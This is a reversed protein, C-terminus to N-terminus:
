QQQEAKAQGAQEIPELTAFYEMLLRHTFIYSGGVKRLFVREAAYDLFRIYNLPAYNNRWLLIRLVYHKLCASGGNQLGVALGFVLGFVLGGSLGIALGLDLGVVLDLELWFILRIALGFVLEPGLGFILKLDLGFVLWPSVGFVLGFVLGGFLGFVLGFVLRSVLEGGLGAGLGAGLWGVLMGGLAAGLWPVLVGGLIFVLGAGLWAVLVGSLLSILANRLSRRIGENPITRTVIQDTSLGGVLGSGLGFVLGLVLGFVLGTVLGDVLGLLQGVGLGVVLGVVLGGVLLGLILGGAWHSRARRWSWRLAEAPTIRDLGSGLGAGLGLVLGAGLGFVLGFVLGCFIIPMMAVVWRQARSPLWDPQMLEVYFVSLNNRMLSRALWTLWHITQEQTYETVKTRREFMRETYKAFLHARRKELSGAARVEAASRGRYALSVISLMLPTDLLEWLTEDDRLATRVGALPKGAQKLYTSVQARSLANIAVAGSVKVRVPLAHYDAARCCVALPVLWHQQRFTNIAEVCEVRHEPAVEDLGDLLPLVQEADIWTQALKRPVYYREALEDVLWDALPRRRVAWSSLHFVVPMPYSADQEARDLLDRTLELLLTTKGAGPAGLILLAQGLEDFVASISRGPPLPRPVQGPPQVILDFPRSITDPEEEKLGLEIRVINDLSHKLYGDIWTERVVELMRRRNPDVQRASV